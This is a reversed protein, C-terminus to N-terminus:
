TILQGFTNVTGKYEEIRKMSIKTINEALEIQTSKGAEVKKDETM